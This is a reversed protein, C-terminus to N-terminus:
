VFNLKLKLISVAWVKSSGDAGVIRINAFEGRRHEKKTIAKMHKLNRKRKATFTRTRKKTISDLFFIM